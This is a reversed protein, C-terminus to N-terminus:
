QPLSMLFSADVHDYPIYLHKSYLEERIKLNKDLFLDVFENALDKDTVCKPLSNEKRVGTINIILKFLARTDKGCKIVKDSLVDIYAKSLM